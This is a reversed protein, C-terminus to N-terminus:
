DEVDSMAAQYHAWATPDNSRLQGLIENVGETQDRLAAVSAELASIMTESAWFFAIECDALDDEELRLDEVRKPHTIRNRIETASKLKQWGSGGFDAEFGAIRKAIRASLRIGSGVPIFRKQTAVQGDAGVFHVEESLAASEKEWLRDMNSAISAIEMRFFWVLGEIAAFQTRVLDRRSTQTDDFRQRQRAIAVDQLLIATLDKLQM